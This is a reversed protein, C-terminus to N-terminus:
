VAEIGMPQSHTSTSPVAPPTLVVPTPKVESSDTHSGCKLKRCTWAAAFVLVCGGICSFTIILARDTGSLNSDGDTPNQGSDPEDGPKLMPRMRSKFEGDGFSIGAPVCWISIGDFAPADRPLALTLTEGRYPAPRRLDASIAYGDSYRGAQGVYVRVELGDGDFHFNELTITCADVVTATGQVGHFRGSLVATAGRLLSGVPLECEVASVVGSLMMILAAV